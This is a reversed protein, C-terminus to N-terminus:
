VRWTGKYRLKADETTASAHTAIVSKYKRFPVRVPLARHSHFPLGNWPTCASDRHIHLRSEDMPRTMNNATFVPAIEEYVGMMKSYHALPRRIKGPMNVAYTGLMMM